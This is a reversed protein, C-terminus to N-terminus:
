DNADKQRDGSFLADPTVIRGSADLSGFEPGFAPMSPRFILDGLELRVMRDARLSSQCESQGKVSTPAPAVEDAHAPLVTLPVHDRDPLL